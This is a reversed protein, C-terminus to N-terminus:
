PKEPLEWLRVGKDRDATALLSTHPVLVVGSIGSRWKEVVELSWVKKGTRLDYMLVQEGQVVLLQSADRGFGVPCGWPEAFREKGTELDWVRAVGGRGGAALLRGDPSFAVSNMQHKQTAWYFTRRETKVDWVLVEGPNERSRPEWKSESAAALFGGDPSWAVAWISENGKFTRIVKRASLDYVWAGAGALLKGDPSFTLSSPVVREDKITDLRKWTRTDWLALGQDHDGGTVLLRGDPSFAVSIVAMERASIQHTTADEKLDWVFGGLMSVGVALYRGDPSCAIASTGVGEEYAHRLRTLKEKPQSAGQSGILVAVAAQLLPLIM